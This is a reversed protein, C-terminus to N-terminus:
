SHSTEQLDDNRANEIDEKLKALYLACYTFWIMGLTIIALMLTAM